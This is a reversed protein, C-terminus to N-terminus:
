LVGEKFVTVKQICDSSRVALLTCNPTRFQSNYIREADSLQIFFNGKVVDIPPVSGSAVADNIIHGDKFDGSILKRKAKQLTQVYKNRLYNFIELGDPTTLDLFAAESVRVQAELVTYQNYTNKRLHKDWAEVIAWNEAVINPKPPVGETFFYIGDGLWRDHQVGTSLRFGDKLISRKNKTATGHYGILEIM